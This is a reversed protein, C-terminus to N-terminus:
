RPKPDAWFRGLRFIETFSIYLNLLGLGSVAGRVYPNMWLHQWNENLSSFFNDDWYKSWPFMVLFLGLELCAIIVVFSFLKHYWRYNVPAREVEVQM